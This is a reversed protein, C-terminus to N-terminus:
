RAAVRAQQAAFTTIARVLASAVEDQFKGSALRKEETRNSIFATEVLVAPMRAGLLVYFLASKVGLDRVPGFRQRIGGTMERQVMGALKRSAQASVKADLDALIRRVDLPSDADDLIGNERAALRRSYRDSNVDLVWTEVGQRDRRPHANAHVSVFLDGRHANALATREALALYRDDERTLVVEFGAEALKRATRKSIALTVDKERLRTPGIAGPDHGGHGPDIVIKRIPGASDQEGSPFSFPAAFATVAAAAGDASSDAPRKASSEGVRDAAGDSPSKTPSNALGEAAHVAPSEPRVEPARAAAADPPPVTARPAVPDPAAGGSVLPEGDMTEYAGEERPDEALMALIRDLVPDTDPPEDSDEPAEGEPGAGREAAGTDDPAKAAAGAAPADRSTAPASKATAQRSAAKTSAPPPAHPRDDGAERRVAAIFTDADRAGASRAKKALALARDRDAEDSSFRYLAYRARAAELLAPARDKGKAARLLARIGKEWEHKFRRRVPDQKVARM